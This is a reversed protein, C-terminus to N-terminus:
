REFAALLESCIFPGDVIFELLLFLSFAQQFEKVFRSILAVVARHEQLYQSLMRFQIIVEACFGLYMCDICWSFMACPPIVICEAIIVFHYLREHGEITWIGTPM